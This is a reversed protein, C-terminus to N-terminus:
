VSLGACSFWHAGIVALPATVLRAVTGDSPGGAPVGGVGGGTVCGGGSGVTTMDGGGPDDGGILSTAGDLLAGLAGGQGTPIFGKFGSLPGGHGGASGTGAGVIVIGGPGSAGAPKGVM